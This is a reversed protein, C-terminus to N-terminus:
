LNGASFEAQYLKGFKLRPEFDRCNGGSIVIFEASARGVGITGGGCGRRSNKSSFNGHACNAKITPAHFEALWM